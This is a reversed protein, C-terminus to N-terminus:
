FPIEPVNRVGQIQVNHLGQPVFFDTYVTRGDASISAERLEGDLMVTVTQNEALQPIKISVPVGNPGYPVIGFSISDTANDYRMSRIQAFASLSYAVFQGNGADLTTMPADFDLGACSYYLIDSRVVPDPIAVFEIEEGPKIVPIINSRVTDLQSTHDRSHVAAFVSVNRVEFPATNRIKGIFAREEGVAMGDYILVLMDYYPEEVKSVEVIFPDGAAKEESDLVFKFPSDTLPWVTRGYTSTQLTSGDETRLGVAVQVPVEGFNRVTGVVNQRGESDVFSSRLIITPGEQAFASSSLSFTM